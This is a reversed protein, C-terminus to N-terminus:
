LKAEIKVNLNVQLNELFCNENEYESVYKKYDSTKFKYLRDCASFMDVQNEKAKSYASSLYTQMKKVIANKVEDSIHTRTADISKLTTNSTELELLQVYLKSTIDVVPMGNEFKYKADTHKKVISIGLNKTNEDDVKEEITIHGKQTYPNLINLVNAEDGQLTLTQKGKKYLVFSGDCKIKKSGQSQESGGSEGGGSEGGGSQESSGSGSSGGQNSGGQSGSSSEDGGEELGIITVWAMKSKSFYRSYFEEINMEVVALSESGTGVLKAFTIGNEDSNETNVQLLEKATGPTAILNTNKILNNSRIFYDLVEIINEDKLGEGVVVSDCHALGIEKGLSLSLKYVAEAINVGTSSVLKVNSSIKMPNEEVVMLGSFEYTDGTKDIGISTLIARKEFEAKQYIATPFTIAFFILFIALTKNKLVKKLLEKM